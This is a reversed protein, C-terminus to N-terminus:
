ADLVEMIRSVEILVPVGPGILENHVIIQRQCLERLEKIKEDDAM